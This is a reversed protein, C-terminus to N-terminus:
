MSLRSKKLMSTWRFIQLFNLITTTLGSLGAKRSPEGGLSGYGNILIFGVFEDHFKVYWYLKNAWYDTTSREFQMGNALLFAVFDLALSQTEGSLIEHIHSEINQM